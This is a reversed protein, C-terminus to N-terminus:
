WTRFQISKVQAYQPSSAGFLSKIYSKVLKAVHVLGILKDYLIQNRRILTHSYPTYTNVINTNKRKLETLYAELSSVQLDTENPRYASVQKLIEIIASFHDTLKDYSQQSNSVTRQIEQGPETENTKPRSAEGRIKRVLARVDSVIRSDTTAVALANIVRTSLAELKQFEQQRENTAIVFAAKATHVELIMNQAKDYLAQLETINILSNAPNYAAGYSECFSLLDQFNAVNKAHGVESTSHTNTTTM